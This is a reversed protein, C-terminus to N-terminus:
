PIVKMLTQTVKAEFGNLGAVTFCLQRLRADATYGKCGLLVIPACWLCAHFLDHRASCSFLCDPVVCSICAPFKGRGSRCKVSARM